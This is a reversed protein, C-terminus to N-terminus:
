FMTSSFSERFSCKEETCFKERVKEPNEDSPNEKTEVIPSSQKSAELKEEIFIRMSDVDRNGNYRSKQFFIFIRKPLRFSIRSSSRPWKRVLDVNSLSPDPKEFLDFKGEHLRGSRFCCFLKRKVSFIRRNVSGFSLFEVNSMEQSLDEFIPKLVRCHSCWPAFFMVFFNKKKLQNVFNEENLDVVSKKSSVEM